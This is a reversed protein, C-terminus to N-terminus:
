FSTSAAATRRLCVATRWLSLLLEEWDWVVLMMECRELSQNFWGRLEHMNHLPLRDSSRADPLSGEAFVRPHKCSIVIM